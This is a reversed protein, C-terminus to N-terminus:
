ATAKEKSQVFLSSISNGLRELAIADGLDGGLADQNIGNKSSKKKSKERKLKKKKVKNCPLSQIVAM